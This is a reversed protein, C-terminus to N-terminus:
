SCNELMRSKGDVLFFQGTAEWVIFSRARESFLPQSRGAPRRVPANMLGFRAHCHYSIDDEQSALKQPRGDEEMEEKKHGFEALPVYFSKRKIDKQCQFSIM